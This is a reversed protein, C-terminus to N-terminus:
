CGDIEGHNADACLRIWGTLMVALMEGSNSSVMCTRYLRVQLTDELEPSISGPPPSQRYYGGIHNEM